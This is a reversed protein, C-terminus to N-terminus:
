RLFQIGVDVHIWAGHAGVLVAFHVHQIVASFSVQVQTVIFAENVDAQVPDAIHGGALHIGLHDTLLPATIIQAARDLDDRVDGVLDLAANGLHLAGRAGLDHQDLHAARNAINFRQGEQFRQALHAAIHPTLIGQVDMDGPQWINASGGFQFGLGGLVRHALQTGNADRWIHNHGTRIVM